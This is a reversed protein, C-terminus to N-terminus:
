QILVRLVSIRKSLQGRDRFKAEQDRDPGELSGERGCPPDWGQGGDPAPSGLSTLPGAPWSQYYSLGSGGTLRSNSESGTVRAMHWYPSAWVCSSRGM